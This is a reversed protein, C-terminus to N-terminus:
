AQETVYVTQAATDSIIYYDGADSNAVFPQGALIQLGRNAGSNTVSSSGIYFKATSASDAIAMLVSRTASPASGTVTLRIATTGVSLAAQTLTGATPTTALSNVKGINNTGAPLANTIATVASVTTVTALTQAAAISVTANLNAATGQTVTFNGTGANATVTGSVPQTTASGDVKLAGAASISAQNSGATDVLKTVQSSNTLTADLALGNTTGINSTVTGSVPQTTASGDVSLVGTASVKLARLNTGDTGGVMTASAPVATGTTSVSANNATVTGTVAIASQDSSIVVPVSAAMTKQGLSNLKGNIAALNGGSELALASTNLNTGANATVTGSVTFTGTGANATVTGSIPVPTARLQTDTLPGTVTIPSTLKSDISALHGGSELALASTNLNTGANATVSGGSNQMPTGLTTNITSLGAATAAGTPLSVTGSINNINLKGTTDVSLAQLNTGDSGAVQTAQAPVAAGTAGNASNTTTVTGTVAIASQDSAIVVPASNAMTKQGLSNFKANLAALNGGSELALASTNLNTGANATVSGGTQQMPTGLTTNITTLETHTTSDSVAFTGSGANATVTGSIPVPTARLQTDTLPGTVTIPSTLKSDISALSAIETAQNASTAAGSPLPLTAASVPVASARLQADTLPGTVAIPSTLKSDISSLSANGATQLASTSAGTPLPVTGTINTVQTGNTQNAQIATLTAEQTTQNAATAAGDITGLNATVTGSITVPGVITAMNEPLDVYQNSM